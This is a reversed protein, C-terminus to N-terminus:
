FGTKFVLACIEGATDLKYATNSDYCAVSIPAVNDQAIVKGTAPFSDDMKTDIMLAEEATLVAGQRNDDGNLSDGGLWLVHNPAIDGDVYLLNGVNTVKADAVSVYVLGWGASKIQSAPINEGVVRDSVGDPGTLGTYTGEIFGALALQQWAQFQEAGVIKGDGNGNVVGSFNVEATLFDGPLARYKDQFHKIAQLHTQMEKAAGVVEANRILHKGIVLGSIIAAIIMLVISIELLTFGDKAKM